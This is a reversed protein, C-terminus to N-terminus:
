ETLALLGQGGRWEGGAAVAVPHEAAAAEVCLMRLFGEPEMETMAECRERGPNWVVTDRFGRQTIELERGSDVLRTRQPADVFVRDIPHLEGLGPLGELRARAVDTVGLYTHLAGTFSFEREGTNRVVLEVDLRPGGVAVVLELAFAHTWIRLTEDSSRLRFAARRESGGAGQVPQWLRTRVFGHHPLPGRKSFQPFIVPMGGRV